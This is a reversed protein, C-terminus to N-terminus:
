NNITKQVTKIFKKISKDYKQRNEQDISGHGFSLSYFIFAKYKENWHFTGAKEMIKEDEEFFELSIKGMALIIKPKAKKIDDELHRWCKNKHDETPKNGKGPYCKVSTAITIDEIHLDLEYLNKLLENSLNCSLLKGNENDHWSPHETIIMITKDGFHTPYPRSELSCGECTFDIEESKKYNKILKLKSPYKKGQYIKYVDEEEYKNKCMQLLTPAVVKLNNSIPFEFYEQIETKPLANYDWADIITLLKRIKTENESRDKSVYFSTPKFKQKKEHSAEEAQKDGLGKIESFPALLIGDNSIWKKADSFGIKPLKISLGQNYAEKVIQHKKSDGGCTLNACYFHSPYYYKLWATVYALYAYAVSHSKNFSYNASAELETWFQLAEDKTMTKQKLCGEIFMDKYKDFERVDRKKGIIKRISDAVSFPLGAIKTFMFMQQEQFCVLALTEKTIEEYIPHKPEWEKGHKRLLYEDSIGSDAAGPRVLAVAAVMDNFTDIRLKKIYSTMTRTNMQFVGATDGKSLSKFVNKDDVSMFDKINYKKNDTKEILKFTEDIISLQSLGLLDLKCLGCYESNHMDWNVVIQKNNKSGVRVLNCQGSLMLDNKSVIIASAHQGRGRITGELKIAIDVIKPYKKYFEKGEETENKGRKVIDSGKSDLAKAFTDVEKLPINFVRAVDRVVSKGKLYSFTSVGAINNEGYKDILYQRAEDRKVDPIDFDIDPYDKREPNLFREFILNYQIPDIETINLFDCILSSGSSGRGPSVTWGQDKCYQIFDELILFYMEFNKETIVEFEMEVRDKYEKWKPDELDINKLSKAKEKYLKKLNDKASLEPYKLCEPLSIDQKKIRFDKCKEAIKLTNFLSKKVTKQDIKGIKKYNELIEEWSQIYSGEFDFRFRNPNDWTSGTQIALLVDHIEHDERKVYHADTTTILPIKYAEHLELCLENIEHQVSLDHPMIELFLDGKIKKHLKELFKISHELKLWSGACATTIILGECKEYLINFDIRPKRYYYELNAISLIECLNRWGIEDKVYVCCHGSKGKFDNYSTLYLECGIIPVIDRKSCEEQFDITADISGHDSIGLYKFGMEKAREAYESVKGLGDLLSGKDTHLHLPCFNRNKNDM